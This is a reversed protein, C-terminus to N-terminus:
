WKQTASFFNIYGAIVNRFRSVSCLYHVCGDERLFNLHNRFPQKLAAEAAAKSRDKERRQQFEHHEKGTGGGM